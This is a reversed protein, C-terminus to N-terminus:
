RVGIEKGDTGRNDSVAVGEIVKAALKQQNGDGEYVVKTMHTSCGTVFLISLIISLYKM